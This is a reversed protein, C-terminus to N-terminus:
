HSADRWTKGWGYGVPFRMPISINTGPDFTVEMCEKVVEIDREITEEDFELLLEDHIIARLARIYYEGRACLRLIADGMIGATTGQGYMAPATTYEKGKDTYLRRGWTNTIYGNATAEEVARDKFNKLWPYAENFNDIFDRTHMSGPLEPIPKAKPEGDRGKGAPAWFHMDLGAAKAAKNLEVALKYAGVSYNMSHGTIKAVVRLPPRASKGRAGEGYYADAGFIAEGTLNHADHLDEGNEDEAFREAYAEDGSLAAMARADASSYDFGALVKGPGATFLAKDAKLRENREGFITIGPETFSWRSSRQLATIKPHVRGDEKMSDMVLQSLARQGKLEAIAAAFEEAETGEALAKLDEGGLKLAGKPTLPWEHTEPTVGFHAFARVIAEKGANTSWPAKGEQPFDFEDELWKLIEARKDAMEQIRANAYDQNVLIGNARMQGCVASQVAMERWITEGPYNQSKVLGILYHYLARVAVVDEHAYKLFEEDKLDILGYNLDAVKTGPPNYRKAIEKLDGIKGPLDFQHTLNGLSLWGMTHEVPKNAATSISGNARKYSFPAPLLLNALYFPDIVKRDLAMQLPEISETGFIWRLDASIQNHAVVYDAARLINRVEELDEPNHIEKLIVPGDNIAYQFLRVFEHAPMRYEWGANFGETDYFCYTKAM